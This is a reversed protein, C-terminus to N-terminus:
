GCDGADACLAYQVPLQRGIRVRRRKFREVGSIDLRAPKGFPRIRQSLAYLFRRRGYVKEKARDVIERDSTRLFYDYLELVFWMAWNPIYAHDHHQAPFCDPLMGKEIEPVDALIYNELFRKEIENRGTFLREAQASFYSDCLWGARERGPCDTFIDVANQRFTAAAAEFVAKVRADGEVSICDASGNELTVLSPVIKAKGPSLIKLYKFAYPEASMVEHRGAPLTWCIFDNNASRRFIWKGDPLIEDFVAFIKVEADTEVVLRLFGSRESPLEYDAALYGTETEGILDRQIDFAGEPTRYLPNDKWWVERVEDFGGFSTEGLFRFGAEAYDAKDGNGELLIPAEVSYVPLTERAPRRLDYVELFGRQFSYRPVDRRRDSVSECVFDSTEAITRGGRTVEAGFYPLQQDCAYCAVNYATVKVVLERVGSLSLRRLRAYGAATREPGYSIFEGDAWVRYFDAACLTLGDFPEESRYTFTLERNAEARVGGWVFQM